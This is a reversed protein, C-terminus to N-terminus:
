AIGPMVLRGALSAAFAVHEWIRKIHRVQPLLHQGRAGLIVTLVIILWPTGSGISFAAGKNIAPYIWIIDNWHQRLVGCGPMTSPM